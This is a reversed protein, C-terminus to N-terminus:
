FYRPRLDTQTTRWLDFCTLVTAPSVQPGHEAAHRGLPPVVQRGRGLSSRTAYYHVHGQERIWTIKKGIKKGYEILVRCQKKGKTRQM